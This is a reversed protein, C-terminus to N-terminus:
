PVSAIFKLATLGPMFFYAGGKVTVFQELSNLVRRYPEDQISFRDVRALGGKEPRLTGIIPDVERELGHFFQNNCWTSQIFEYQRNISANICLFLLGEAVDSEGTYVRGRRLIRHRNTVMLKDKAEKPDEMGFARPNSRRIHSGFPCHVGNPDNSFDFLNNDDFDSKPELELTTGDMERGVLKAGLKEATKGPAKVTKLYDWFAEVNQELQRVVLYTGNRGLDRRQEWEPHASLFNNPDSEATTAPSRPLTETGDFDDWNKDTGDPYGLVFEGAPVGHLQAARSGNQVFRNYRPTGIIVPQSIGDVFGFPEKGKLSKNDRPSISESNGYIIDCAHEAGNEGKLADLRDKIEDKEVGFAILLGNISEGRGWLWQEPDNAEVDGLLRSRHDTVMGEVFSADYSEEIWGDALLSKLGSATFAINLPPDGSNQKWNAATIAKNEILGKLWAQFANQNTIRFLCYGAYKFEKFPYFVLGQIDPSKTLAEIRRDPM